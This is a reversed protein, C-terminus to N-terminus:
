VSRGHRRMIVAELRKKFRLFPRGSVDISDVLVCRVGARHACLVDTFLQDGLVCTDEPAAGLEKMLSKLGKTFPKGARFRVSYGLGKNFENVRERGNNSILAVTVGTATVASLWATIEASPVSESYTALTNDVDSVLYRIGNDAFFGPDIRCVDSFVFDPILKKLSM